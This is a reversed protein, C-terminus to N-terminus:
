GITLFAEMTQQDGQTSWIALNRLPKLNPLAEAPATKFAGLAELMPWLTDGNIWALSAVKAPMQRTAAAFATDDALALKPAQFQRVTDVSSGLFINKGDVGYVLSAKPDIKSEWGSVGNALTVATFPPVEGNSMSPISTRLRDLVAAGQAGDSTGVVGGFTPKDPAAGPTLAFATEGGFLTKLDTTSVGFLALAGKAQLMQSKFDEDQAMLPELSARGMEFLNNASMMVVANAPVNETFTPTFATTGKSQYDLGIAKVRLGTQEATLSMGLAADPGIGAAELQQLTAAPLAQKSIELVGAMDVYGQAITDAPLASLVNQLRESKAMNAGSTHAALAQKLVEETSGFVLTGDAVALWGDNSSHSGETRGKYITVGGVEGVKDVGGMKPSTILQEVQADKGDAIDIALVMPPVYDDTTTSVGAATTRARPRDLKTPDITVIGQAASTGLLPLIDRTFEVGDEAMGKKMDAVVTGFGPFRKAIDLATQWQASNLDTSEEMYFLSGAPIFSATDVPGSGTKQETSGGCAAFGAAGLAVAGVVISRRIRTVARIGVQTTM